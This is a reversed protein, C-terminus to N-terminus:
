TMDDNLIDPAMSAESAHHFAAVPIQVRALSTLVFGDLYVAEYCHTHLKVRGPLVDVLTEWKLDEPFPGLSEWDNSLAKAPYADQKNQIKLVTNYELFTKFLTSAYEFKRKTHRRRMPLEDDSPETSSNHIDVFPPELLMSSSAWEATKRLEIVFPQGGIADVSGQLVLATNVGGAIALRYATM